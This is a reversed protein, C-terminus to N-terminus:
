ADQNLETMDFHWEKVLPDVGLHTYWCERNDRCQRIRQMAAARDNRGLEGLAFITAPVFQSEGLRRLRRLSSQANAADGMRFRAYLAYGEAFYRANMQRDVLPDYASYRVEDFLRLAERENGTVLLGLAGFTKAFWYNPWRRCVGELEARGADYDGSFLTAIGRCSTILNQSSIARPLSDIFETADGCRSSLVLIWPYMFAAIRHSPDIELARAALELAGPFDWAYDLRVKCLALIAEICAADGALATKAQEEAAELLERPRDYQFDAMLVQTLAAGGLALVNRDDISLARKYLHLAAIMGAPSGSNRFDSAAACFQEAVAGMYPPPREDIEGVFRYGRGYDTVIYRETVSDELAHRLMLVHQRLTQETADESDGWIKSMIEGTSLTVGPRSVLLELLRLVKSTVHVPSGRRFLRGQLADLAFAGFYFM